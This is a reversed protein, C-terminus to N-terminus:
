AASVSDPLSKTRVAPAVCAAPIRRRKRSRNVGSSVRNSVTIQSRKSASLWCVQSPARNRGLTAYGVVTGGIEVVLVTASRRMANAWWDPGRRRLMANLARHPIIGSYAGRWAEYHVDAIAQADAPEAKRIGVALTNM